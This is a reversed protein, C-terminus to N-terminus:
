LTINYIGVAPSILLTPSADNRYQTIFEISSQDPSRDATISVHLTGSTWETTTSDYNIYKTRDYIYENGPTRLYDIFNAWEADLDNLGEGQYYPIFTLYSGINFYYRAALRNAFQSVVRHTISNNDVGWPLTRLSKGGGTFLISSGTSIVFQGPHCTYRRSNDYLWAVTSYLENTQAAQVVTTGTTVKQITTSTNTIHQYLIDTDYVLNNWELATTRNSTGLPNSRILPLGYGNEGLGLVDELLSQIGNHDNHNITDGSNVPYTM